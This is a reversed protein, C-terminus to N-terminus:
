TLTVKLAGAAWSIKDGTNCVESGGTFATWDTKQTTSSSDWVSYHSFTQADADCAASDVAATNQRVAPDADTAADWAAISTAAINTSANAGDESYRVVDGNVIASDLTTRAYATIFGAM